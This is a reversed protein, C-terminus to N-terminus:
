LVVNRAVPQNPQKPVTIGYLKSKSQFGNLYYCIFQNMQPLAVPKGANSGQLKQLLTIVPIATQQSILFFLYTFNDAVKVSGCVSRFYSSVVDFDAFSVNLRNSYYSDFIRVTKDLQKTSDVTIAM